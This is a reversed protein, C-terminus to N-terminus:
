KIVGNPPAGNAQGNGAQSMFWEMLQGRHIRCRNGIKVVPFGEIHTWDYATKPSIKLLQAAETVTPIEDDANM